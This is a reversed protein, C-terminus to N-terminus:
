ENFAYLDPINRGLGNFDLGFGFVYSNPVELGVFDANITKKQKLKKEFLVVNSISQPKMPILLEYILSMTIGEDLIDDVVLINQNQIIKESPQHTVNIANGGKNNVYRSVHFYNVEITFDLKPILIGVFPIAGTLIPLLLVKNNRYKKNLKSALNEIAMNIEENTYILQSRSIIVQDLM